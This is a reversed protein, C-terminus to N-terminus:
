ICFCMLFGITLSIIKISVYMWRHKRFFRDWKATTGLHWIPDGMFYNLVQDFLATFLLASAFFYQWHIIGMTIFFVVRLFWRSYHSEIFDNDKLHEADVKASLIVFAFSLGIISSVIV